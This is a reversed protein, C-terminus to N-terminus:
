PAPSEPPHRSGQVLLRVASQLRMLEGQVLEWRARCEVLEARIGELEGTNSQHQRDRYWQALMQHVLVLLLGLLAWVNSIDQPAAALIM